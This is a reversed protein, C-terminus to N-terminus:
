NTSRARLATGSRKIFEVQNAPLEIKKRDGGNTNLMADGEEGEMLRNMGVCAITIDAANAQWFGNYLSDNGLM